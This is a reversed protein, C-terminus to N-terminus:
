TSRDRVYRAMSSTAWWSVCVEAKGCHRPEIFRSLDDPRLEPAAAYRLAVPSFDLATVNMGAQALAWPEQSVGCGACLITSLGNARMADVLPQDHTFMDFLAPNMHHAFQAQWYDDWATADHVDDPPFLWNLSSLDLPPLSDAPSEESAWKSRLRRIFRM